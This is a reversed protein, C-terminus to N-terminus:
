SLKWEQITGVSALYSLKWKGITGVSAFNSLKWKEITGVSSSEIPITDVRPTAVHSLTWEQM